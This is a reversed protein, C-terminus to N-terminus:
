GNVDHLHHVIDHLFYQALTGATFVSGNSRRGPRDWADAPVSDFAGAAKEGEAVLQGSVISAEQGAYDSEIATVGQDWNAFQPDDDELLLRLRETFLGFVDRVHCAYETPSWTSPNPREGADSGALVAQWRPVDIRLRHGVNEPPFKGANFGCEECPEDLVWTWDKTDPSIAM